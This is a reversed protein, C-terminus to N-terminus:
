KFFHQLDKRVRMNYTRDNQQYVIKRVETLCNNINKENPKPQKVLSVLPQLQQLMDKVKRRENRVRQLDKYAKFGESANLNTFEILHLLDQTEMDLRKEQERLREYERPYEVFANRIMKVVGEIDMWEGRQM